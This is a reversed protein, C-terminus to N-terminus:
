FKVNQFRSMQFVIRGGRLTMLVKGWLEMGTFAPNKGRSKFAAPDVKWKKHIDAIVLDARFGPLIFGRGSLGSLGSLGCLGNLGGLGLICAPNASMLASLRRMDMRGSKVLATNCAAFSTELGSFGPAGKAKDEETHPAHDTAIADITGDLIAEILAQRDEEGRLPPNVRGYSEDGLEHARAESLAIHHPTAECTLPHHPNATAAKANRVIRVAEKTSVHAIHIHCRAEKGLAIVRETAINEEIRSWVSRSEGAQKAKEAERGGADCHCSVPIGIRSAEKLAQLFIDDRAIDRGDESLMLPGTYANGNKSPLGALGSLERGEMNKTLSMVPYLDILDLADSRCKLAAAKEASDMVPKTNAMCVIAGYGGAAAALSASELVEKEPFGPDRFHAHLDVFAPMLVPLRENPSEGPGGGDFPSKLGNIVVDARDISPDAHHNAFCDQHSIIEKIIGNEIIVTGPADTNKDVIRFNKLVTLM